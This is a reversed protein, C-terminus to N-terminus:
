GAVSRHTAAARKLQLSTRQRGPLLTLLGAALVASSGAALFVPNTGLADMAYGAGMFSIIGAVWNMAKLRPLRRSLMDPSLLDAAVAPALSDNVAQGMRLLAVAVWFHWLQLAAALFIAGGATLLYGLILFGRRGFRDSFLSILLVVPIMALGAATSTSSVASPSFALAQMSLSAGMESMSITAASLLAAGLLFPFWRGRDSNRALAPDTASRPGAAVPIVDQLAIHFVFPLTLWLIALAPFMFAYGRWSVLGGVLLGGIILGLPGSLAALSFVKGREQEHSLLAIYVQALSLCSGGTFWLIATLVVVQWLATAWGLSVLALGGVLTAGVLLRRRSIREPLWGPLLVGITISAAVITLYLGTTRPTAGFQSAYIPLLPHLGSGITLVVLNTYFLAILPHKKM